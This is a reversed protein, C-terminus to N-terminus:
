TQQRWNAFISLGHALVWFLLGYLAGLAMSAAMFSAHGAGNMVIAALLGFATGAIPPLLWGNLGRKNAWHALALAFPLAVLGPLWGFFVFVEAMLPMTRTQVDLIMYLPIALIIPVFVCSIGAVIMLGTPVIADTRLPSLRSPM